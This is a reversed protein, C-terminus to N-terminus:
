ILMFKKYKAFHYNQKKICEVLRQGRIQYKFCNINLSSKQITYPLRDNPIKSEEEGGRGEEEQEKRNKSRALMKTM